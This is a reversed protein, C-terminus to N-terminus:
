ELVGSLTARTVHADSMSDLRVDRTTTSRKSELVEIKFQLLRNTNSIDVIIRM